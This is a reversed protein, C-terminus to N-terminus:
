AKGVASAADKDVEAKAKKNEARTALRRLREPVGIMVRVDNFIIAESYGVELSKMADYVANAASVLNSVLSPNVGVTAFDKIKSVFQKKSKTLTYVDGEHKVTVIDGNIIGILPIEDETQFVFRTNKATRGLFTASVRGTSSEFVYEKNLKLKPGLQPKKAKKEESM